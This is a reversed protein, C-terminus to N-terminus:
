EAEKSPNIVCVLDRAPPIGPYDKHMVNISRWGAASVAELRNRRLGVKTGMGYPVWCPGHRHTVGAYDIIGGTATVSGPLLRRLQMRFSRRPQALEIMDPTLARLWDAAEDYDKAVFLTKSTDGSKLLVSVVGDFRLVRLGFENLRTATEQLVATLQDFPATM